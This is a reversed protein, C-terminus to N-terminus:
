HFLKFVDYWNGPVMNFMNPQRLFCEVAVTQDDDIMNHKLFDDVVDKHLQYYSEVAQRGGGFFGGNVGPGVKQKYLQLVSQVISVNNVAIYTIKNSNDMINNPAWNCSKPFVDQGHGYGMDLWYFYSTNFPNRNVTEYMMSLKANMLLNYDASFGEPHNILFNDKKFDDSDMANQIRTWYTKYYELDKLETLQLDTIGDRNARFYRVFAESKPETYAVMPVDLSLM